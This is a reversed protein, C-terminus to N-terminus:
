YNVSPMGHGSPVSHMYVTTLAITHLWRCGRGVGMELSWGIPTTLHPTENPLVICCAGDQKRRNDYAEFNPSGTWATSKPLTTHTFCHGSKKARWFAVCGAMGTCHDACVHISCSASLTHKGTAWYGAGRHTYTHAGTPTTCRTYWSLLELYLHSWPACPQLVDKSILSRVCWVADGQRWWWGSTGHRM